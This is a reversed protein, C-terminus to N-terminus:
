RIRRNEVATQGTVERLVTRYGLVRRPAVKNVYEWYDSLIGM